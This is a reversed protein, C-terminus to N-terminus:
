DQLLDGNIEYVIFTEDRYVEFGDGIKAYQYLDWGPDVEGGATYFLVFARGTPLKEVKDVEQLWRGGDVDRQWMEIKGNSLEAVANANWFLAIGKNYGNGVLWETVRETGYVARMPNDLQTKVSGLSAVFFMATFLSYAAFRSYKWEFNETKIELCMIILGFMVIPQYYQPGGTFYSFSFTAFLIEALSFIYIFREEFTLIKFRFILRISSVLILLGCLLGLGSIIGKVSFLPIGDIYGYSHIFEKIMNLFSMYNWCNWSFELFNYNPVLIRSNVLYGCLNAIVGVVSAIVYQSTKSNDLIVQKLTKGDKFEARNNSADVVNRGSQNCLFLVVAAIFLPAYLLMMQKIGNMGSAVALAVFLIAYVIKRKRKKDVFNVLCFISAVTFFIYTLYCGGYITQWFYWYGGPFVILAAVWLGCEKLKLTKSIGLWLVVIIALALASGIIRAAHWNEPFLLLGIRYFFQMQFVRIETSYYYNKSLLGGEKNLLNSLVMESAMDSDLLMKGYKIHIFLDFICGLLLWLGPIIYKISGKNFISKIKGTKEM